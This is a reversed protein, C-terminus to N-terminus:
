NVQDLVPSDKPAAGPGVGEISVLVNKLGGAPGTIVTEEMIDAGGEACHANAIPKMVPPTVALTVKGRVVGNGSIVAAAAGGGNESTGTRRIKTEESKSGCGAILVCVVVHLWFSQRM